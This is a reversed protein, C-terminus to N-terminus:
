SPQMAAVAVAPSALETLALLEMEVVVLLEEDWNRRLTLVLIM